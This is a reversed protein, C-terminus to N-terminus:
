GQSEWCGSQNLRLGSPEIRYASFGGLFYSSMTLGSKEAASPSPSQFVKRSTTSNQTACPTRMKRTSLGWVLGNGNQSHSIRSTWDTWGSTMKRDSAKVRGLTM